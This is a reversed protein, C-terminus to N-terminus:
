KEVVPPVAKIKKDLNGGSLYRNHGMRKPKRYKALLNRIREEEAKARIIMQNIDELKDRHTSELLHLIFPALRLWNSYINVLINYVVWNVNQRQVPVENEVGFNCQTKLRVKPSNVMPIQNETRERIVEKKVSPCFIISNNLSSPHTSPSKAKINEIM